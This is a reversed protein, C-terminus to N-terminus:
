LLNLREQRHYSHLKGEHKLGMTSIKLAFSALELQLLSLKSTSCSRTRAPYSNSTMLWGPTVAVTVDPNKVHHKLFSVSFSLSVYQKGVCPNVTWLDMITIMLIVLIIIWNTDDESEVPKTTKSLFPLIQGVYTHVIHIFCRSAISEFYTIGWTPDQIHTCPTWCIHIYTNLKGIPLGRGGKTVTAGESLCVSNSVTKWHSSCRSFRTGRLKQVIKSVSPWWIPILYEM